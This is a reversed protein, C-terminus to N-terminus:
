GAGGELISSGFALLTVPQGSRLKALLPRLADPSHTAIASRALRSAFFRETSLQGGAQTHWPKLCTGGGRPACVPPWPLPTASTSPWDRRNRSLSAGAPPCAAAATALLLVATALRLLAVRACVRMGVAAGANAPLSPAL